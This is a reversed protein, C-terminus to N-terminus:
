ECWAQVRELGSRNGAPRWWAAGVGHSFDETFTPTRVSSACHGRVERYLRLRLWRGINPHRSAFTSPCPPLCSRAYRWASSFLPAAHTGVQSPEGGAGRSVHPHSPIAPARCVPGVAPRSVLVLGELHTHAVVRGRGSSSEFGPKGWCAARVDTIFFFM